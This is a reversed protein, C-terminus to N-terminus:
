GGRVPLREGVGRVTGGVRGALSGAAKQIGSRRGLPLGIVRRRTDRAAFAVGGALGALAAGGAAVVVKARGGQGGQDAGSSADTPTSANQNDTM